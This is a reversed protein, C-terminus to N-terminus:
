TVHFRRDFNASIIFTTLIYVKLSILLLLNDLGGASFFIESINTGFCVKSIASVADSGLVFSCGSM